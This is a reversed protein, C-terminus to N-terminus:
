LILSDQMKLMILLIAPYRMTLTFRIILILICLMTRQNPKVSCQTLVLVQYTFTIM